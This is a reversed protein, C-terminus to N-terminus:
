SPKEMYYANELTMIFDILNEERSLALKKRLRYRATKVSEASIGLITAMEKMNLNLRILACLKLEYNSLDPKYDKLIKAFFIKKFTIDRPTDRSGLLKQFHDRPM